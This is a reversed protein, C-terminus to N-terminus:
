QRVGSARDGLLKEGLPLMEEPGEGEPAMDSHCLSGGLALGESPHQCHCINNQPIHSWLHSMCLKYTGSPSFSPSSGPFLNKTTKRRSIPCFPLSSHFHTKGKRPMQSAAPGLCDQMSRQACFLNIFVKLSLHVGLYKNSLTSAWSNATISRRGGLLRLSNMHLWFSINQPNRDQSVGLFSLMQVNSM